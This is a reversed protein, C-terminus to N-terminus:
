ASIHTPFRRRRRCAHLRPRVVLDRRRPGRQALLVRLDADPRQPDGTALDSLRVPLREGHAEAGHLPRQPARSSRGVDGARGRRQPHPHVSHDLQRPGGDCQQRHRRADRDQLRERPSYPRRAPEAGVMEDNPHLRRDPHRCRGRHLDLGPARISSCRARMSPQRGSDRRAAAARIGHAARQSVDCRLPLLVMSELRGICWVRLHMKSWKPYVGPTVNNKYIDGGLFFKIVMVWLLSAFPLVLGAPVPRLRRRHVDLPQRDRLVDGIEVVGFVGLFAVLGPSYLCLRSSSRCPPSTDSPSCRQRPRM